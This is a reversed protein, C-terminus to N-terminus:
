QSQIFCQLCVAKLTVTSVQRRKQKIQTGQATATSNVPAGSSLGATVIEDASPTRTTYEEPECDRVKKLMSWTM